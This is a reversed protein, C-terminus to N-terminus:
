RFTKINGSTEHGYNTFSVFFISDLNTERQFHDFYQDIIASTLQKVRDTRFNYFIIADDKSILGNKDVLKPTLNEDSQVAKYGLEVAATANEAVDGKGLTLLDYALKTRDEWHNDRDMAYFRGCITAIKGVKVEAIKAEITKIYDLIKKPATDRGDTILHLYVDKVGQEKALDLLALLHDLHSHVGGTSTLGLLHLKSKNKKVLECASILEQNAFFTKNKISENIRPLDQMVVRGTGINLHGVESNGIEGFELGVEQGSAHLLTSPYTKILEDFTPTKAKLVANGEEVPSMGFGDLIILTIPKIKGEM